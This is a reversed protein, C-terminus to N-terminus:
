NRLFNNNLYTKTSNRPTNIINVRVSQRVSPAKKKTRRKRRKVAGVSVTKSTPPTGPIGQPKEAILQKEPAPETALTPTVTELPKDEKFKDIAKPIVLAGASLILGAVGATKTGQIVNGKNFVSEGEIVKGVSEGFGVIKGPAKPLQKVKTVVAKRAKPSGKLVGIGLLTSTTAFVKGRITKPIVSKVATKGFIKSSRVVTPILTGARASTVVASGGLIAGATIATNFVIRGATKFGSKKGSAIAQRESKVAKSAAGIGKTFLIKPHSLPASIVDLAKTFFSRFGM